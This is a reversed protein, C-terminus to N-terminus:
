RGVTNKKGSKKKELPNFQPTNNQTHTLPNILQLPHEGYNEHLFSYERDLQLNLKDHEQPDHQDVIHDNDNGVVRVTMSMM